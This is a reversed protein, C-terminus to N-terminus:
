AMLGHWRKVLIHARREASRQSCNSLARDYARRAAPVGGIRHIHEGIRRVTQRDNDNTQRELRSLAEVLEDDFRGEGSARRELEADYAAVMTSIALADGGGNKALDRLATAEDALQQDPLTRLSIAINRVRRMLDALPYAYFGAAKITM